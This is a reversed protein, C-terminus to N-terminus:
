KLKQKLEIVDKITNFSGRQRKFRADHKLEIVDKITNFGFM